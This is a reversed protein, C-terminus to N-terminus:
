LNSTLKNNFKAYRTSHPITFRQTHITIFDQVNNFYICNLTIVDENCDQRERVLLDAELVLTTVRCKEKKANQFVIYPRTLATGPM